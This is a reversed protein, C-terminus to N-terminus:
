TLIRALVRIHKDARLSRIAKPIFEDILLWGDYGSCWGKANAKLM